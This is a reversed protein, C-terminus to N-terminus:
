LKTIFLFTVSAIVSTGVIYFLDVLLSGIFKELATSPRTYLAEYLYLLVGTEMLALMIIFLIEGIMIKFFLSEM